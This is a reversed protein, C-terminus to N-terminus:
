QGSTERRCTCGRARTRSTPRVGGEAVLEPRQLRRGRRDGRLSGAFRVLPSARFLGPITKGTCCGAPWDGYTGGAELLRLAEDYASSGDPTGRLEDILRRTSFRREPLRGIASQIEPQLIADARHAQEIEADM